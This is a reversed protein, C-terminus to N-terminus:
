EFLLTSITVTFLRGVQQLGPIPELIEDARRLTTGELIREFPPARLVGDPGLFAVCAIAQHLSCGCFSCVVAGCFRLVILQCNFVYAGRRLIRYM